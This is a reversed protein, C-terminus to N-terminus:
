IKRSREADVVIEQINKRAQITTELEVALRHGWDYNMEAHSNASDRVCDRCIVASDKSTRYESCKGCFACVEPNSM